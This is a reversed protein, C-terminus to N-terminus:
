AGETIRDLLTRTYKMGERLIRLHECQGQKPCVACVMLFRALRDRIDITYQQHELCQGEGPTATM